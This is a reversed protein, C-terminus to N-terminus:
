SKMVKGNKGVVHMVSMADELPINHHQEQKYDKTIDVFDVNQKDKDIWKLFQIEKM